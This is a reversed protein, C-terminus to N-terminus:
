LQRCTGVARERDFLWCSVQTCRGDFLWSVQTCRGVLIRLKPQRTEKVVCILEEDAYM